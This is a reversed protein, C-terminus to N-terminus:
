RGIVTAAVALVVLAAGGYLAYTTWDTEEALPATDARAQIASQATANNGVAVGPLSATAPAHTSHAVGGPPAINQQKQAEKAIILAQNVRQQEDLRAAMGPAMTTMAGSAPGTQMMAAAGPSPAPMAAVQATSTKRRRDVNTAFATAGAENLLRRDRKSMFAGAASVVRKPTPMFKPKAMPGPQPRGSPLTMTEKKAARPPPTPAPVFRPAQMPQVYAKPQVAKPQWLPKPSEKAQPPPPPTFSANPKQGAPLSMRNQAQRRAAATAKPDAQQPIQMVAGSSKPPPKSFASAAKVVKPPPTYTAKKVPPTYAVPKSQSPASSPASQFKKPAVYKAKPAVYKKQPTPPKKARGLFVPRGYANFAM